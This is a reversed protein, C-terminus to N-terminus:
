RDFLRRRKRRVAHMKEIADRGLMIPIGGKPMFFRVTKGASEAKQVKDRIPQPLPMAFRLTNDPAVVLKFQKFFLRGPKGSRFSKAITRYWPKPKGPDVVHLQIDTLVIDVFKDENLSKEM